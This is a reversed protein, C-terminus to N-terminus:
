RWISCTALASVGSAISAFVKGLAVGLTVATSGTAILTRSSGDGFAFVAHGASIIVNGITAPGIVYAQALGKSIVLCKAGSVATSAAVGLVDPWMGTACVSIANAASAVVWSGKNITAGQNEMEVGRYRCDWRVNGNKERLLGLTTDYWLSGDGQDAVPTTASVQILHSETSFESLAIATVGANDVLAHLTTYNYNLSLGDTLTYGRTIHSM